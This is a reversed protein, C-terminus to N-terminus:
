SVSPFEVPSDSMFVFESSLWIAARLWVTSAEGACIVSCSVPGFECGTTWIGRGPQTQFRSRRLCHCAANCSQLWISFTTMRTSSGGAFSGSGDFVPTSSVMTWLEAGDKRRFRFDQQEKSGSKGRELYRAAEPRDSKDIFDFVSRGLLEERTYGLMEALHQNVYTTIAEANVAVYTQKRLSDMLRKIGGERIAAVSAM